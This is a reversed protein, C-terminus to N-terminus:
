RGGGQKFRFAFERCRRDAAELEDALKNLAASEQADACIEALGRYLSVRRTVPVQEAHDLCFNVVEVLSNSAQSMHM